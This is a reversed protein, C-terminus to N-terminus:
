YTELFIYRKATITGVLQIGKRYANVDILQGDSFEAQAPHEALFLWGFERLPRSRRYRQYRLPTGAEAKSLPTGFYTEGSPEQLEILIGAPIIQQIKGRPMYTNTVIYQEVVKTEKREDAQADAKQRSEEADRAVGAEHALADAESYNLARQDKAPLKSKDLNQAGGAHVFVIESPTQSLLRVGEYFTGDALTLTESLEASKGILLIPLSAVLLICFTFTRM